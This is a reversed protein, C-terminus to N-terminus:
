DENPLAVFECGVGSARTLRRDLTALPLDLHEALAVYWADYCTLNHRLEWVRAGFPEYPFYEVSLALLDDHALTATDANIEGAQSSRRLINAAEVPMLHPAALNESEMLGDAWTGLPGSDVLAAVVFSADAVITM